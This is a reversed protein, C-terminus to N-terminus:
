PATTPTYRLSEVPLPFELDDGFPSPGGPRDYALESVPLREGLGPYPKKAGEAPADGVRVSTGPLQEFQAM